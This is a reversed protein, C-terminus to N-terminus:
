TLIRSLIWIRVTQKGEINLLSLCIKCSFSVFYKWYMGKRSCATFFIYNESELWWLLEIPYQVCLFSLYNQRSVQAKIIRLSLSSCPFSFGLTFAESPDMEVRRFRGTFISRYTERITSSPRGPSLAGFINVWNHFRYNLICVKRECYHKFM